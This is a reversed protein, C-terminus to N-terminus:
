RGRRRSQPDSRVQELFNRIAFATEYFEGGQNWEDINGDRESIDRLVCSAESLLAIARDLKNTAM